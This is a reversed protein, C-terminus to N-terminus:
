NLGELYKLQQKIQQSRQWRQKFRHIRMVDQSEIEGDITAAISGIPPFRLPFTERSPPSFVLPRHSFIAAFQSFGSRAMILIDGEILHHYTEFASMEQSTRQIINPLSTLKAFRQSDLGESYIYIRYPLDNIIPLIYKKLLTYFFVEPTGRSPEIDGTRVHVAVNIYNRDYNIEMPDLERNRMWKLVQIWKTHGSYDYQFFQPQNFLVNCKDGNNKIIDETFIEFNKHEDTSHPVMGYGRLNIVEVTDFNFDKKQIEGLGMGLFGDLDEYEGHTGKTKTSKYDPNAIPSHILTLNYFLALVLTTTWQGTVHGLGPGSAIDQMIYRPCTKNVKSQPMDKPIWPVPHENENLELEEKLESIIQNTPINKPNLLFLESAALSNPSNSLKQPINKYNMEGNLAMSAIFIFSISLAFIVGIKKKTVM